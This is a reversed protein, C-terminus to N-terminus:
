SYQDPFDPCPNKHYRILQFGTNNNNNCKIVYEVFHYVFDCTGWCFFWSQIIKSHKVFTKPGVSLDKLEAPLM